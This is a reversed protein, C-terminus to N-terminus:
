VLKNTGLVLIINLPFDPPADKKVKRSLGRPIDTGFKSKKVIRPTPSDIIFSNKLQRAEVFNTNM